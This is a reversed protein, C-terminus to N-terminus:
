RLDFLNKILLYIGEFQNVITINPYRASCDNGYNDELKWLPENWVTKEMTPGYWPQPNTIGQNNWYITTDFYLWEDGVKVEVWVHNNGTVYDATITKTEFGSQNAVHAFLTALEGCAGFMHYAIWYPNNALPNNEARVKGSDDYRFNGIVRTKNYTTNWKEYELFNVYNSTEWEAITTLKEIPDSINEVKFVIDDIREKGTPYYQLNYQNTFYDQIEKENQWTIGIGYSVLIAIIICIIVSKPSIRWKNCGSIKDQKDKKELSEPSDSM